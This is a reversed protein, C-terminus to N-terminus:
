SDKPRAVVYCLDSELEGCAILADEVTALTQILRISCPDQDSFNGAIGSLLFQLITGGSDRREVIEFDRELIELIDQSRISESPDDAEVAAASPFGAEERFAETSAKAKGSQERGLLKKLRHVISGARSELAAMKESEVQVAEPSLRRYRRPLLRLCLNVVEKQRAPFQFRSPGVYEHFCLLGDPKLCRRLQAFVQELNVFHHLAGFAWVADYHQERLRLQNIDAVFYNIELDERAATRRAIDISAPSIDCADCARFAGGRALKRELEGTGCALSLCRQLPLRGAFHVDLAHQQWEVSPDGSIRRNLQRMVEDVEWFFLGTKRGSYTKAHHDWHRAAEKPDRRM